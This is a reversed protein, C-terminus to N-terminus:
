TRYDIWSLTFDNQRNSKHQKSGPQFNMTDIRGSTVYIFANKELMPNLEAADMGSLSGSISLTNQNDFLRAKLLVNVKSKGMLLAEARLV